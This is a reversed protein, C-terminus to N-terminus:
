DSILSTYFANQYREQTHAAGFFHGGPGVERIADLALTQDNVEIPVLYEAMLQLMEADIIFKEFSACLGAELWGAAHMVLNAHGMVAGWLSMQSEYVAQADVCNATNVNSSRYPLGHRRALQGGIQTARVHEPTGFTPSGTHMDVNSTFGGYIVPTGARVVQALAIGALAEANQQALAGAITVPAMAGALTFPTVCVPQNHRAMEIIGWLMSGDIRLPSSTNVVTHLSPEREMRAASIGRGIRTMEIADLIHPRSLSYADFVKDSLVVFDRLCELHRVAPAIDQAEVPYGGNMHVIDLSQALRVFDRFDAQNGPRRGNELDSANPASAVTAFNIHNGGITLDHGPNRAHITFEAPARAILEEVLHRDLRVRVSGPEVEAGAAALLDRAERLRFDVGIEELITLSARHIAEVEDASVIETPRYPNVVQRWPIQRRGGGEAKRKKRSGRRRGPSQPTNMGTRGIRMAEIMNRELVYVM